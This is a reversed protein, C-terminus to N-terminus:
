CISVQWALYAHGCAADMFVAVCPSKKETGLSVSQDPYLIECLLAFYTFIINVYKMGAVADKPVIGHIADAFVTMSTQQDARLASMHVVVLVVSEAPYFTAVPEGLNM